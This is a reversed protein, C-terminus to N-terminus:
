HLLTVFLSSDGATCNCTQKTPHSFPACCDSGVHACLLIIWQIGSTTVGLSSGVFVFMCLLMLEIVFFTLFGFCCVFLSIFIWRIHGFQFTIQQLRQLSLSSLLSTCPSSTEVLPRALPPTLVWCSHSEQRSDAGAHSDPLRHLVRSRWPAVRVQRGAGGAPGMAEAQHHTKIWRCLDSFVMNSDQLMLCLFDSCYILWNITLIKLPNQVSWKTWLLLFWKM